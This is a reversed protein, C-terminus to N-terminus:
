CPTACSNFRNIRGNRAYYKSDCDSVELTNSPRTCGVNGVSSGTRKRTTNADIELAERLDEISSENRHKKIKENYECDVLQLLLEIM